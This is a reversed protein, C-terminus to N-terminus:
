KNLVRLEMIRIWEYIGLKITLWEWWAGRHAYQVRHGVCIGTNILRDTVLIGCTQCRFYKPPPPSKEGRGKFGKLGVDLYHETNDVVGVTISSGNASFMISNVYGWVQYRGAGLSAIDEAAIGAFQAMAAGGAALRIVQAGTNSVQEGAVGGVYRVGVGTTHTEADVNIATIFVKEADTRNVRQIQM